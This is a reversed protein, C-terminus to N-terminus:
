SHVCGISLLAFKILFNSATEAVASISIAPDCTADAVAVAGCTVPLAGTLVM